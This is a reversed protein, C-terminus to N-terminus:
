CRGPKAHMLKADSSRGILRRYESTECDYMHESGDALLIQLGIPRGMPWSACKTYPDVWVGLTAAGVCLGLLHQVLAVCCLVSNHKGGGSWRQM